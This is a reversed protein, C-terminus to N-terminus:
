AIESFLSYYPIALAKLSIKLYFRNRYDAVGKLINFSLVWRYVM